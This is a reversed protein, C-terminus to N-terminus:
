SRLSRRLCRCCCWFTLHHKGPGLVVWYELSLLCCCGRRVGVFFLINWNGVKGLLLVQKIVQLVAVDIMLKGLEMPNWLCIRLRFSLVLMLLVDCINCRLREAVFWREKGVVWWRCVHLLSLTFEWCDIRCCCDWFWLNFDQVRLGWRMVIRDLSQM